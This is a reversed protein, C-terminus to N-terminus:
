ATVKGRPCWRSGEGQGEAHVRVRGSNANRRRLVFSRERQIADKNADDTYQQDKRAPSIAEASIDFFLVKSFETGKALHMAMVVPQGPKVAERDVSRVQPGPGSRGCHGPSSGAGGM